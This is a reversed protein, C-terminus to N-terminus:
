ALLWDSLQRCGEVCNKCAEACEFSGMDRNAEFSSACYECIEICANCMIQANQGGISILKATSLCISICELVIKLTSSDGSLQKHEELYASCMSACQLCKDISLQVLQPKM